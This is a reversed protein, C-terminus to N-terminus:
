LGVVSSIKRHILDAFGNLRAIYNEYDRTTTLALNRPLEPFDIHCHSDVLQM